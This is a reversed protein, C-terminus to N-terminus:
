VKLKHEGITKSSDNDIYDFMSKMKKRRKRTFQLFNVKFKTIKEVIPDLEDKTFKSMDVPKKEENNQIEPNAGFLLLAILMHKNEAKLAYHMATNGLNDKINLDAFFELILWISDTPGNPTECLHM